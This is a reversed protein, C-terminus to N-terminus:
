QNVVATSTLSSERPQAATSSTLSEHDKLIPAAVGPLICQLPVIQPRIVNRRCIVSLAVWMWM